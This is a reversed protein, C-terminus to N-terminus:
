PSAMNMTFSAVIETCSPSIKTETQTVRSKKRCPLVTFVVFFLLEPVYLSVPPRVPVWSHCNKFITRRTFSRDTFFSRDNKTTLRLLGLVNNPIGTWWQYPRLSARSAPYAVVSESSITTVMTDGQALTYTGADRHTGTRTYADGQPHIKKKFHAKKIADM